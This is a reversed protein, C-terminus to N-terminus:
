QRWLSLQCPTPGNNWRSYRSQRAVYIMPERLDCSSALYGKFIPYWHIMKRDNDRDNIKPVKPEIEDEISLCVEYEIKFIALASPYIIKQPIMGRAITSYCKAAHDAAILRSVSISSIRAGTISDEALINSASYADISPINNKCLKRFWQISKKDFDSLSTFHTIREHTVSLM